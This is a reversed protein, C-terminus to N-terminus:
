FALFLLQNTRWNICLFSYCTNMRYLTIYWTYTILCLVDDRWSHGASNLLFYLGVSGKLNQELTRHWFLNVAARHRPQRVGCQIVCAQYLCLWSATVYVHGSAACEYRGVLSFSCLFFDSSILVTIHRLSSKAGNLLWLCCPFSSFHLWNTTQYKNANLYYVGDMMYLAHKLLVLAGADQTGVVRTFRRGQIKSLIFCMWGSAVVPLLSKKLHHFHFLSQHYSAAM